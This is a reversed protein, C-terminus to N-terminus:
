NGLSPQEMQEAITYYADMATDDLYDYKEALEAMLSKLTDRDGAILADQAQVLLTYADLKNTLLEAEAGSVVAEGEIYENSGAMELLNHELNYAKLSLEENERTIKENEASLSAYDAELTQLDAEYKGAQVARMALACVGIVFAIAFAGVLGQFIMKKRRAAAAAAKSKRRRVPRSDPQPNADQTHPKEQSGPMESPEHDKLLDMLEQDDLEQTDFPQDNLETENRPDENEHTM